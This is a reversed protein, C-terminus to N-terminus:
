RGERDEAMSAAILGNRRDLLVGIAMTVLAPVAWFAAVNAYMTPIPGSLALRAFESMVTIAQFGAFWIPWFVGLRVVYFISIALLVLDIGFYTRGAVAKDGYLDVMATAATTLLIALLFLRADRSGNIAVILGASLLVLWFMLAMLM